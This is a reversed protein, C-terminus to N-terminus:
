KYDEFKLTKKKTIEAESGNDMLYSYTKATLGTFEKMIKGDLEDKKLGIIKETKGKPLPRGLVYDSTGFRTKVDEPIDKYIGDSKISVIFYNQKKVMNHNQMIVGFSM